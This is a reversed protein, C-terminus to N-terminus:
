MRPYEGPVGLEGWHKSSDKGRGAGPVGVYSRFRGILLSRATRDFDDGTGAAMGEGSMGIARALDNAVM